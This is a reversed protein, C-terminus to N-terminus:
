EVRQHLHDHRLRARHQGASRCAAPLRHRHSGGNAEYYSWQDLYRSDNPTLLIHMKRDPQAFEVDPNAAIANALADISKRDLERDLKMVHSGVSNTRLLQMQAGSRNVKTHADSMTQLDARAAAATGKRYKIILQDTQDAPDVQSPPVVGGAFAASSWAFALAALASGVASLRRTKPLSASM